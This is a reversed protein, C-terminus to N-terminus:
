KCKVKFVSLRLTIKFEIGETEDQDFCSRKQFVFPKRQRLRTDKVCYSSSLSGLNNTETARATQQLTTGSCENENAQKGSTTDEVDGRGRGARSGRGGEM